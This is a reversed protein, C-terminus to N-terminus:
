SKSARSVATFCSVVKSLIIAQSTVLFPDASFTIFLAIKFKPPMSIKIEFAPFAVLPIINSNSSLFSLFAKSSFKKACLDKATSAAFIM